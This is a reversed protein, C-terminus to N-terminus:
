EGVSWVAVQQGDWLLSGGGNCEGVAVGHGSSWTLRNKKKKKRKKMGLSRCTSLVNTNIKSCM